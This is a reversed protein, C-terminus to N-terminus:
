AKAGAAAGVMKRTEVVAGPLIYMVDERRGRRTEKEKVGAGAGMTYQAWDLWYGVVLGCRECRAPYRKELGDARQVIIPASNTRALHLLHAHPRHTTATEDEDDETPHTRPDNTTTSSPDNNNTDEIASSLPLIYAADLTGTSDPISPTAAGRQPLTSLATGTALLLQTCHCHYTHITTTTETSMTSPNDTPTPTAM